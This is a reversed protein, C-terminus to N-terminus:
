WFKWFPKQGAHRTSRFSRSSTDEDYAAMKMVTAMTSYTEDWAMEAEQHFDEELARALTRMLSAGVKDYDHPQVGYAVHRKALEEVMPITTELDNLGKVLASLAAMLKKGQQETDVGEFYPRVEPASAFLDDYFHRAFAESQPEIKAFTEEVLSIAFPTM